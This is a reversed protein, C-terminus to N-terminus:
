LAPPFSYLHPSRFLLPTLSMFSFHSMPKYLKNSQRQPWCSFYSSSLFSSFALLFGFQYVFMGRERGTCLCLDIPVLMSLHCYYFFFSLSFFPPLACVLNTFNDLKNEETRSYALHHLLEANQSVCAKKTIFLVKTKNVYDLRIQNFCVHVPYSALSTPLKSDESYHTSNAHNALQQQSFHGCPFCKLDNLEKWLKNKQILWSGPVSLMLNVRISIIWAWM